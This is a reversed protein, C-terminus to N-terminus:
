RKGGFAATLDDRELTGGMGQHSEGFFAGTLIGDDGGTQRFTNGTVAISYALDGDGWVAGTGIDGPAEGAAWSELSTFDAQGTLDDLNVGLEADGAVPAEDPTLGLLLGEWTATGMLAANDALDTEPMYGHAWPETYGNRLGVGFAVHEGNAYIHSSTSAWPGLNTPLDGNDLRGYLARLAERDVSWLLSLPQLKGDKYNAYPNRAEMITNLSPVIHELVGLAHVLEHALVIVGERDGSGAYRHQNILIESYSLGESTTLPRNVGSSGPLPFAATPLFFLYIGKRDASALHTQLCVSSPCAPGETVPQSAIQLKWDWPLATNILQVANVLRSIDAATAGSGFSIMPPVAHRKIAGTNQIAGWLYSTVMGSGAGDNLHGRRIDFDGRKGMFELDAMYEAGQDVGIYLHSKRTIFRYIPAQRAEPTTRSPLGSISYNNSTQCVNNM